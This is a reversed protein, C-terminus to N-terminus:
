LETPQTISIVKPQVRQPNGIQHLWPRVMDPTLKGDPTNVALLKCGTHFEPAGGENENIHATAPCIIANYPRTLTRLALVNAGTGSFVIYSDASKGFLGRMLEKVRETYPDDGYAPEHDVNAAVIAEMILPHIGSHNDSGFSRM